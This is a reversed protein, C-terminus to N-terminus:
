ECRRSEGEVCAQKAPQQGLAHWHEQQSRGAVRDVGAYSGVARLRARAGRHVGLAARRIAGFAAGGLARVYPEGEEGAVFMTVVALHSVSRRARARCGDFRGRPTGHTTPIHGTNTNIDHQVYVRIGTLGCPYAFFGSM